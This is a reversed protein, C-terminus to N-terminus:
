KGAAKLAAEIEKLYEKRTSEGDFGGHIAIIKGDAGVIFSTPMKEIGFLEPAKGAGDRIVTFPIPNKKLFADMASKEEDVSIALVMLGRSGFKDQLEKM